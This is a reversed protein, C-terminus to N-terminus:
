HCPVYSRGPGPMADGNRMWAAHLLIQIHFYEAHDGLLLLMLLLLQHWFTNM